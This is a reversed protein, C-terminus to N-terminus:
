PPPPEDKLTGVGAPAQATSGGGARKGGGGPGGGRGPGGGGLEARGAEAGGGEPSRSETRGAAGWGGPGGGRDGGEGSARRTQPAPGAAPPHPLPPPAPRALGGSQRRPPERPRHTGSGSDQGAVRAGEGAPHAGCRGPGSTPSSRSGRSPPSPAAGGDAKRVPPTPPAPAAPATPAARTGRGPGSPVAAMWQTGAVSGSLCMGRRFLLEGRSNSPRLGGVWGSPPRDTRGAPPPLTEGASSASPVARVRGRRQEARREPDPRGLASPLPPKSAGLQSFLFFHLGQFSVQPYCAARATKQARQVSPAPTTPSPCFGSGM